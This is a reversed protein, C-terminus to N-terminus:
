SYRLIVVLSLGHMFIHKSARYSLTQPVINNGYFIKRGCERSCVPQTHSWQGTILCERTGNEPGSSQYFGDDCEFMVVDQYLFRDGLRRGNSPVGPDGCSVPYCFFMLSHVKCADAGQM